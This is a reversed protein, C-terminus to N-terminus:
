SPLFSVILCLFLFYKYSHQTLSHTLSSVHCRPMMLCLARLVEQWWLQSSIDRYVSIIRKGPAPKLSSSKKHVRWLLGTQLKEKGKSIQLIQIGVM